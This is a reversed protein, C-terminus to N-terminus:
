PKVRKYIRNDTDKLKFYFKHLYVPEVFGIKVYSDMNAVSYAATVKDGDTIVVLSTWNTSGTPLIGYCLNNLLSATKARYITYGTVNMVPSWSIQVSTSSVTVFTLGAPVTPRSYDPVNISYIYSWASTGSSNKSRVGFDYSGSTGVVIYFGPWPINGVNPSTIDYFYNWNGGSIRYCVDYATAGSVSSWVLVCGYGSENYLCTLGVPPSPPGSVQTLCISAINSIRSTDRTDNTARIAFYYTVGVAFNSLFKVEKTGPKAPTWNQNVLTASNWNATTISFTAYRITYSSVSLLLFYTTKGSVEGPATWSLKIEGQNSTPEALLDTIRSPLNYDVNYFDCIGKYTAQCMLRMGHETTLATFDPLTPPGTATHFAYEILCGPVRPRSPEIYDNYLGLGRDHWTSDYFTRMIQVIKTNIKQALTLSQSRVSSPVTYVEGDYDTYQTTSDNAYLTFTGTARTNSFANSHLSIYIDAGTSERLYWNCYFPRVRLNKGSEGSAYQSDWVTSPVNEGYVNARLYYRPGIKWRATNPNVNGPWPDTYIVNEDIKPERVSMVTAGGHYILYNRLIRARYNNGWDELYQVGEQSYIFPREYAWSSLDDLYRRGHGASLVIKKGFLPGQPDSWPPDGTSYLFSVGFLILLLCCVFFKRKM